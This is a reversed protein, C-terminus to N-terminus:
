RLMIVVDEPRVNKSYNTFGAIDAFLITVNKFEDHLEVKSLSVNRLKLFAHLPM